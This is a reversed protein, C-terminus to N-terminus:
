ALVNVGVGICRAHEPNAGTLRILVWKGRAVEAALMPLSRGRGYFIGTKVNHAPRPNEKTPLKGFGKLEEREIDRKFSPKQQM